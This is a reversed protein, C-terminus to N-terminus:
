AFVINCCRLVTAVSFALSSCCPVTAIVMWVAVRPKLALAIDCCRQVAPVSFTLSSHASSVTNSEHARVITWGNDGFTCSAGPDQGPLTKVWPLTRPDEMLKPLLTALQTEAQVPTSIWDQWASAQLRPEGTSWIALSWKVFSDSTWYMISSMAQPGCWSSPSKGCM